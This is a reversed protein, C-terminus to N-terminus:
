FQKVELNQIMLGVGAPQATRLSARHVIALGRRLGSRNDGDLGHLARGRDGVAMGSQVRDLVSAIDRVLEAEEEDDALCSSM